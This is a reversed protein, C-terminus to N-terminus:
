RFPPLDAHRKTSAKRASASRIEEFNPLAGVYGLKQQRNARRACPGLECAEERNPLVDPHRGFLERRGWKAWRGLLNPWLNGMTSLGKEKLRHTPQPNVYIDLPALDEAIPVWPVTTLNKGVSFARTPRSTHASDLEQQQRSHDGEPVVGGIKPFEGSELIDCYYEEAMTQNRALFNPMSLVGGNASRVAIRAMIGPTGPNM